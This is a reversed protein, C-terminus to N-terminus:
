LNEPPTFYTKGSKIEVPFDNGFMKKLFIRYLRDRKTGVESIAKDYKEVINAFTSYLNDYLKKSKTRDNIEYRFIDVINTINSGNITRDLETKGKSLINQIRSKVSDLEEKPIELEKAEPEIIKWFDELSYKEYDVKTSAVAKDDDGEWGSFMFPVKFKNKKKAAVLVSGVSNLVNSAGIKTLDGYSSSLERFEIEMSKDDRPILAIRYFKEAIKYYYVYADYATKEEIAENAKIIKKSYYSKFKKDSEKNNDSGRPAILISLRPLADKAREFFDNLLNKENKELEEYPKKLLDKYTELKFVEKELAEDYKGSLLNKGFNKMNYNYIRKNFEAWDVISVDSLKVDLAERIYYLFSM